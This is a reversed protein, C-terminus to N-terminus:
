GAPLIHVQPQRSGTVEGLAELKGEDGGAARRLLGMELKQTFLDVAASGKGVEENVEGAPSTLQELRGPYSAMRDNLLPDETGPRPHRDGPGEAQRAAMVSAVGSKQMAVAQALEAKELPELVAGIGHLGRETGSVLTLGVLDGVAGMELDRARARAAIAPMLRAIMEPDIGLTAM